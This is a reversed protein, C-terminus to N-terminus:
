NKSAYYQEDIDHTVCTVRIIWNTSVDNRTHCMVHCYMHLQEDIHRSRYPMVSVHQNRDSVRHWIVYCQIAYSMASSLILSCIFNNTSTDHETHCWPFKNITIPCETGYLMANSPMHCQVQYSSVVYSTTRQHTTSPIADRFSMSQSPVSLAMCCPM